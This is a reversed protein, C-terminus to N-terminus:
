CLAIMEGTGEVKLTLNYYSEVQKLLPSSREKFKEVKERLQPLGIEEILAQCQITQHEKGTKVMDQADTIIKKAKDKAENIEDAGKSYMSGAIDLVKM